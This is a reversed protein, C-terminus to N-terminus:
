YDQYQKFSLAVGFIKMWTMGKGARTVGEELAKMMSPLALLPSFEDKQRKGTIAHMLSSAVHQMLSSAM